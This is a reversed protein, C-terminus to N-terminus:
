CVSVRQRAAGPDLMVYVCAHWHVSQFVYNIVLVVMPILAVLKQQVTHGEHWEILLLVISFSVFMASWAPVLAWCNSLHVVTEGCCVNALFHPHSSHGKGHPPAPDGDLVIVGPSLGVETGHPMKIWGVTLDCYVLTVPLCVSLVSLPGM